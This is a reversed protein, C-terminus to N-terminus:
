RSRIVKSWDHGLTIKLNIIIPLYKDTKSLNTNANLGAMNEELCRTMFITRYGVGLFQKSDIKTADGQLFNEKYKIFFCILEVIQFKNSSM